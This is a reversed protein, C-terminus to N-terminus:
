NRRPGSAGVRENLQRVLAIFDDDGHGSESTEELLSRLEIMFPLRFGAEGALDLVLDIDKRMMDTTFTSSYDDRLLPETKYEVFKSGVVSAGIVELLAGRDIGASEGLALAEALLEATGGILVQLALKAVRAREGDGLYRVTPAIARLLQGHRDAVESPGSVFISATGSRVAVPNGSFPARLYQVEAAAAAEAVEASAGVSITSMEVLTSGAAARRLIGGDGLVAAHVADDDALSTICIQARSLASAVSDLRAAGREVLASDRGPTRNGVAVPYGADLLRDAVALGMHGLGVVAISDDRVEAAM